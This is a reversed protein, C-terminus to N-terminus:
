SGWSVPWSESLLQGRQCDLEVLGPQACGSVSLLVAAHQRSSDHGQGSSGDCGATAITSSRALGDSSTNTNTSSGVHGTAHQGPGLAPLSAAAATAVAIAAAGPAATARTPAVHGAGEVVGPPLGDNGAGIPGTSVNDGATAATATATAPAVSLLVPEGAPNDDLTEATTPSHPLGLSPPGEHPMHMSSMSYSSITLQSGGTLVSQPDRGAVAKVAHLLTGVDRPSVDGATASTSPGHSSSGGGISGNAAGPPCTLATCSGSEAVGTAAATSSMAAATGDSSNNDAPDLDLCVSDMSTMIPIPVIRVTRTHGQSQPTVASTACTASIQVTVDLFGTSSRAFWQLEKDWGKDAGPTDSETVGEHRGTQGQAVPTRGKIVDTQGPHPETVHTAMVAEMGPPRTGEAVTTHQETTHQDVSVQIMLQAPAPGAVLVM